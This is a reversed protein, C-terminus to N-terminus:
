INLPTGNVIETAQEKSLGFVISLTNIKQSPILTADKLVNLINASNTSYDKTDEVYKLPLIEFGTNIPEHWNTFLETFLETFMLRYDSTVSNYFDYANQIDNAGLSGAVADLFAPPVEYLKRIRERVTKETLEFMKDVYTSKVEHLRFPKTDANENEIMMIKM